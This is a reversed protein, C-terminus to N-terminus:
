NSILNLYDSNEKEVYADLSYREKITDIANSSLFNLKEEDHLIELIKTKFSNESLDLILGNVNDKVIEKHHDINSVVPVCGRSMAELLVKPSGEFHSSLSFIKYDSIKILLEENNLKNLLNLKVGLNSSLSKLNSRQSGEGIIDLTIQTDKFESVLFSFNKQYELRGVSVVRDKYRKNMSLTNNSLEVWNPRVIIKNKTFYFYKKIFREDAKSTVSYKTSFIISFQTLIYIFIRKLYPKNNKIAFYLYDYGTRVLLPTKLKAKLIIGMWSGMLQNTKILSIDSMFNSLKMAIVFSYLFKIYKNKHEKFNSYIPFIKGNPILDKYQYDSTNGFTVFTFKINFLNTLENYLKMEREFIGSYGWDKLSNGYTLFIVVNM